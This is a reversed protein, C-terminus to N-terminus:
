PTVDLSGLWSWRSLYPFESGQEHMPTWRFMSSELSEVSNFPFHPVYTCCSRRSLFLVLRDWDWDVMNREVNSLSNRKVTMQRQQNRTRTLLVEECQSKMRWSWDKLKWSSSVTGRIIRWRWDLHIWYDKIQCNDDGNSLQLFVVHLVSYYYQMIDPLLGSQYGQDHALDWSRM